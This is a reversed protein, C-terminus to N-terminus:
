ERAASEYTLDVVGTSVRPPAEPNPPRATDEISRM